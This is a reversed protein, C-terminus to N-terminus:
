SETKRTEMSESEPAPIGYGKYVTEELDVTFVEAPPNSVENREKECSSVSFCIFFLVGYILSAAKM